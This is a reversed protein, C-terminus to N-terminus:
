DEDSRAARRKADDILKRQQVATELGYREFGSGGAKKLEAVAVGADVRFQLFPNGRLQFVGPRAERLGKIDRLQRLLPLLAQLATPDAAAM